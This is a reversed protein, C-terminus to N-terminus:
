NWVNNVWVSFICWEVKMFGTRTERKLLHIKAVWHWSLSHSSPGDPELIIFFCCFFWLFPGYELDKSLKIVFLSFCIMRKTPIIWKYQDPVATNGLSSKWHFVVQIETKNHRYLIKDISTMHLEKITSKYWIQLKFDQFQVFFCCFRKQTLIVDPDNLLTLIKLRWKEINLWMWPWLWWLILLSFCRRHSRHKM